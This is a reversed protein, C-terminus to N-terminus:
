LAQVLRQLPLKNIVQVKLLPKISPSSTSHKRLNLVESNSESNLEREDM